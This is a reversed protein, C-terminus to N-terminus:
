CLNHREMVDRASVTDLSGDLIGVGRGRWFMELDASDNRAGVTLRPSPKPLADSADLIEWYHNLKM